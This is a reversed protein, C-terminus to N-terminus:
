REPSVGLVTNIVYVYLYGLLGAAGTGSSWLTLSLNGYRTSLALMSTEGLGCQSSVMMVGLLKMADSDFLAVSCFGCVFLLFAVFM